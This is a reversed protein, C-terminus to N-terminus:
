TSPMAATAGLFTSARDIANQRLNLYFLGYDYIHMSSGMMRSPFATSRLEPVSLMGDRCEADAAGAEVVMANVDEGDAARGYSQYGIGGLYFGM